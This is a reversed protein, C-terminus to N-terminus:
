LEAHNLAKILMKPKEPCKKNGEEKKNEDNKPHRAYRADGEGVIAATLPAVGPLNNACHKNREIGYDPENNIHVHLM